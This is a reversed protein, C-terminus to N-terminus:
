DKDRRDTVPVSTRTRSLFWLWVTILTLWSPGLPSLLTPSISNLAVIAYSSDLCCHTWPPIITSDFGTRDNASCLANHSFTDSKIHSTRVLLSMTVDESGRLQKLVETGRLWALAEAGDVIHRHRRHSGQHPDPCIPESTSDCGDADHGWFLAIDVQEEPLSQLYGFWRSRERL